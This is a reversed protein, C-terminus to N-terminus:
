VTLCQLRDTISLPGDHCPVPHSRHRLRFGEDSMVDDWTFKSQYRYRSPIGFKRNGLEDLVSLTAFGVSSRYTHDKVIVFRRTVRAADRLAAKPDHCHHFVDVAMTADFARDDFPLREGDYLEVPLYYDARTQVDVATAQGISVDETLMQNLMWGNGAGFDLLSELPGLDRLTQRLHRAVNPRYNSM